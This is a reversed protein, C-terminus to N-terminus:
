RSQRVDTDQLFHEFESILSRFLSAKKAHGSQTTIINKIHQIQCSTWTISCKQQRNTLLLYHELYELFQSTIDTKFCKQCIETTKPSHTPEYKMTGCDVRTM